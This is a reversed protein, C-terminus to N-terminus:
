IVTYRKKLSRVNNCLCWNPTLIFNEVQYPIKQGRITRRWHHAATFNLHTWQVWVGWPEARGVQPSRCLPGEVCDGSRVPPWPFLLLSCQSLLVSASFLWSVCSLDIIALWDQVGSLGSLHFTSYCDPIMLVTHYIILFWRIGQGASNIKAYKVLAM